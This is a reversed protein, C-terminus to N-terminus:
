ESRLIVQCSLETFLVTFFSLLYLPTNQYMARSIALCPERFPMETLSYIGNCCWTGQIDQIAKPFKKRFYTIDDRYSHRVSCFLGYNLLKVFSARLHTPSMKASSVSRAEWGEGESQASELTQKETKTKIRTLRWLLQLMECSSVHLLNM